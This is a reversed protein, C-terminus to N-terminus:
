RYCVPRPQNRVRPQLASASALGPGLTMLTVVEVWNLYVTLPHECAIEKTMMDGYEDMIDVTMTQKVSANTKIIKPLPNM